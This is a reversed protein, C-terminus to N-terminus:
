DGNVPLNVTLGRKDERTWDKFKFDHFRVSGFLVNEAGDLQANKRQYDGCAETGTIHGMRRTCVPNWAVIGGTIIVFM